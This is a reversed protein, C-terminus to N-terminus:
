RCPHVTRGQKRNLKNTAECASRSQKGACNKNFWKTQQNVKSVKRNYKNISRQSYQDVKTSSLEESLWKIENYTKVCKEMLEDSIIPVHSRTPTSPPMEYSKQAFSVGWSLVLAIATLVRGIGLHKM